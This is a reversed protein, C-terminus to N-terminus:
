FPPDGIKINNYVNTNDKTDTILIFMMYSVLFVIVFIIISQYHDPKNDLKSDKQKSFQLYSTVCVAIVLAILIGAYEM